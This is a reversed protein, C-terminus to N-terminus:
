VAINRVTVSENPSGVRSVEAAQATLVINTGAYTAIDSWGVLNTSSQVHYTIGTEAPRRVFTIQPCNTGQVPAASASVTTNSKWYNLLQVLALPTNTPAPKNAQTTENVGHCSACT